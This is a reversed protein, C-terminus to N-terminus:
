NVPHPRVHVVTLHIKFHFIKFEFESFEEGRLLNERRQYSTLCAEKRAAKPVFVAGSSLDLKKIQEM